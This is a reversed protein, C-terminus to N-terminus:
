CLRVWVAVFKTYFTARSLNKNPTSIFSKDPVKVLTGVVIDVKSAM